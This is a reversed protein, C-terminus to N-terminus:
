VRRGDISGSGAPSGDAALPEASAPEGVAAAEEAALAEEFDPVDESLVVPIFQAAISRKDRTKVYAYGLVSFVLAGVLNVIMDGVTDHIGIDLYGGEITVVEGSALTIQTQVIDDVRIVNNAQEPDLWVTGFATVLTDKQMDFGFLNDMAYEFVEWCAAITMSFTFAAFAMYAPTLKIRTAESRNLVDVAAFGIGACLFGWLTHLMTDWWPFIIYFSEIEGLIEAAFAFCLVIIELLSPLEIRLQHELISPMLLLILVLVCVFVSYPHGVAIARIIELTILLRLAYYVATVTPKAHAKFRLFAAFSRAQERRAERRERRRARRADRRAAREERTM